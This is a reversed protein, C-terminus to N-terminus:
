VSTAPGAGRVRPSLLYSWLTGGAVKAVFQALVVWPLLMGFALTPFLVSDVAAGVVAGSVSRTLWKGNVNSFTLWEALAAAAFAIASAIAISQAAPNLAYTLLGTFLILAGMQWPRLRVQLWNRLALDFGILVFALLPLIGPGYRAVLLNAGTIAGVYLLILILTKM